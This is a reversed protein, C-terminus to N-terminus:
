FKLLWFAAINAKERKLTSSAFRCQIKHSKKNSYRLALCTQFSKHQLQIFEFKSRRWYDHFWKTMERSWCNRPKGKVKLRLFSSWWESTTFVLAFLALMKWCWLRCQMIFKRINAEYAVLRRCSYLTIMNNWVCNELSCYFNIRAAPLVEFDLLCTQRSWPLFFALFVDFIIFNSHKQEHKLTRLSNQKNSFNEHWM